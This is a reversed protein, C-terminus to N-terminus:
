ALALNMNSSNNMPDEGEDQRRLENLRREAGRELCRLPSLSSAYDYTHKAAVEIEHAVALGSDYICRKSKIVPKDCVKHAEFNLDHIARVSATCIDQTAREMVVGTNWMARGIETGGRKAAFLLPFCIYDDAARAVVIAGNNISQMATTGKSHMFESSPIWICNFARGSDHTRDHIVRGIAKAGVYSHHGITRSIQFLQKGAGICLTSVKASTKSCALAAGRYSITFGRGLMRLSADTYDRLKCAINIIINDWLVIKVDHARDRGFRASGIVGDQILNSLGIAGDHLKRFAPVATNCWAIYGIQGADRALRGVHRVSSSLTAVAHNIAFEGGFRCPLYIYCGAAYLNNVTDSAIHKSKITLWKLNRQLGIAHNLTFESTPIYAAMGVRYMAFGTDAIARGASNGVDIIIHGANVLRNSAFQRGPMYCNYATIAIAAGVAFLMTGTFDLGDAINRGRELMFNSVTWSGQLWALSAVAGLDHARDLIVHRAFFIGSDHAFRVSYVGADYTMTSLPYICNTFVSLAYYELASVKFYAWSGFDYLQEGAAIRTENVNFWSGSLVDYASRQVELGIGLTARWKQRIYKSLAMNRALQNECNNRLTRIDADYRIYEADHNRNLKDDYVDRSERLAIIAVNRDAYRKDSADIRTASRQDIISKRKAKHQTFYDNLYAANDNYYTNRVESRKLSSNVRHQKLLDDTINRSALKKPYYNNVWEKHADLGTQWRNNRNTRSINQKESRLASNNNRRSVIDSVYSIPNTRQALETQQDSARQERAINRNHAHKIAYSERQLSRNDIFESIYKDYESRYQKNAQNRTEDATQYQANRALTQEARDTNVVTNYSSRIQTTELWYSAVRQKYNAVYIDWDNKISIDANERTVKKKARYNGWASNKDFSNDFEMRVNNTELQYQARATAIEQDSIDRSQQVNTYYHANYESRSARASSRAEEKILHAAAHDSRRKEETKNIEEQRTRMYEEFAIRQAEYRQQWLQVVEVDRTKKHGIYELDEQARANQKTPYYQLNYSVVQAKHEAWSTKITDLEAQQQTKTANDLLLRSEAKSTFHQSWTNRGEDEEARANKLNQDTQARLLKRTTDQVKRTGDTNENGCKIAYYDDFYKQLELDNDQRANQLQQKELAWKGRLDSYYDKKM